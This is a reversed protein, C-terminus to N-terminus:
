RASAMEILIAELARKRSPMEEEGPPVGNLEFIYALVDVYQQRTLAGPRDEPRTTRILEFLAAATNGSWSQLFSQSFWDPLHCTSCVDRYVQEGRRAQEVTYVGAQISRAGDAPANTQATAGPTASLALLVAPVLGRVSRM